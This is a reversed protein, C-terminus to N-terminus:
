LIYSSSPPPPFPEKKEGLGYAHATSPPGRIVGTPEGGGDGHHNSLLIVFSGLVMSAGNFVEQEEGAPVSALDLEISHMLKDKDDARTHAHARTHATTM